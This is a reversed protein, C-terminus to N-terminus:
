YFCSQSSVLPNPVTDRLQPLPMKKQNRVIYVISVCLMQKDKICM